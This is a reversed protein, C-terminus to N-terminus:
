PLPLRRSAGSRDLSDDSKGNVQPPRKRLKGQGVIELLVEFRRQVADVGDLALEPTAAHRAHEQRGLPREPSLDHDLHERGLQGATDAGVAEPELDLDGGRQVMGVDHRQQGGALGGPMEVVGHREDRALGETGPQRALALQRYRRGDVDDRIDGAGEGVRVAM